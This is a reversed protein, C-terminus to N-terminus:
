PLTSGSAHVAWGLLDFNSGIESNSFKFQISKGSGRIRNRTYVVSEGNNFSLDSENVPPVRRHRYAEIERSWRGSASSNSWDWKVRFKCSSPFDVTYDGGSAVFNQESQRFYVYVYPLQKNRMTDQFLEYGTQIYSYYAYGIDGSYTEWDACAANEFLGATFKYETGVPVAFMFKNARNRVTLNPLDAVVADTDSLVQDTGVLVTEAGTITNINPTPFIGCIYPGAAAPDKSISWPYFANLTLDFNLVRNYMWAPEVTEDAWLWQIVNSASDYYGQVRPRSQSSITANFYTQITEQTINSQQFSGSIPGFVGSSQELGHIGTAAWWFVKGGATVVSNSAVIGTSAVKSVSYDSATFGASTGTVSWVGNEAFVLVGGGFPVLRQIRRAEPIPIQGGDTDILDSINEATPDADQYCFAAKRKNTLVQSFYVDSGQGYWARGAYFAVGEPRDDTFQVPLGGNNYTYVYSDGTVTAGSDLGTLVEGAPDFTSAVIRLRIFKTASNLAVVSGLAGSAGRVLEGIQFAGTISGTYTWDVFASTAAVGSIKARDKYFASLLFHGKPAHTNGFYEKQLAEPDFDGAKLKKEDDDAALKAVWWQKNNGPYRGIKRFYDHILNSTPAYYEVEENWVTKTRVLIGQGSNSPDIWGQNRLNYDHQASLTEPEEDNALGDDVGEFDRILLDLEDVILSDTEEDYDVLIPNIKRGVIFLYGRGSAFDVDTDAVNPHAPAAYQSLDVTFSKPNATAAADKLDYFYVTDGVQKCLFNTGARNNVSFWTFVKIAHNATTSQQITHASLSHGAEYEVGLRRTRNGKRFLVCNDEDVSANEPYTLESAETILGGVFTNYLKNATSRPMVLDREPGDRM